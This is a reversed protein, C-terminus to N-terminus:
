SRSELEVQAAVDQFGYTAYSGIGDTSSGGRGGDSEGKGEKVVGLVFRRMERGGDSEGRGSAREVEGRERRAWPVAAAAATAAAAAAAAAGACSAGACSAGAEGSGSRLGPRRELDRASAAAAAAAEM